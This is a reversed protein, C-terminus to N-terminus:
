VPKPTKDTKKAEPKSVPKTEDKKSKEDVSVETNETLVEKGEDKIVVEKVKEPLVPLEAARGAILVGQKDLKSHAVRPDMGRDIVDILSRRVAM